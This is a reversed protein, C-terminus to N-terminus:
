KNDGSNGYYSELIKREADTDRNLAKKDSYGDPFREYLKDINAQLCEKQNLEMDEYMSYLISSLRAILGSELETDIKRGYAIFKKIIDQIEAICHVLDMINYYDENEQEELKIERLTCYNSHYWMIDTLEEGINVRDDNEIAEQLESIESGLGLALHALNLQLSGLDPMTRKSEKQYQDFNM